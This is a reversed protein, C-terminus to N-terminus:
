TPMIISIGIYCRFTKADIGLLEETRYTACSLNTHMVCSLAHDARWRENYHLDALPLGNLWNFSNGGTCAWRIFIALVKLMNLCVHLMLFHCCSHKMVSIVCICICCQQSVSLNYRYLLLSIETLDIYLLQMCFPSPCNYNQDQPWGVHVPPLLEVPKIAKWQCVYMIVLPASCVM